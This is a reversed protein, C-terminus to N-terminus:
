RKKKAKAKVKSAAGAARAPAGAATVPASLPLFANGKEDHVERTATGDVRLVYLGGAALRRSPALTLTTGEGLVRGGEAAVIADAADLLVLRADPLRRRLVVRFRSGPDVVVPGEGLLPLARDGPELVVGEELLGAVNPPLKEELPAAAPAAPPPAPPAPPPKCALLAATMGAAGLLSSLRPM